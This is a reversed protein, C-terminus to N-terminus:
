IKERTSLIKKKSRNIRGNAGLQRKEVWSNKRERKYNNDHPSMFTGGLAMADLLKWKNRQQRM